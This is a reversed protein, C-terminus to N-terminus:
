TKDRELYYFDVAKPLGNEDYLVLFRIGGGLSIELNELDQIVVLMSTDDCLGDFYFRYCFSLEEHKIEEIKM